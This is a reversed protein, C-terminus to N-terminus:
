IPLLVMVWWWGLFLLSLAVIINIFQLLDELLQM